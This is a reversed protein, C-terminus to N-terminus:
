TGNLDAWGQWKAGVRNRRQVHGLKVFDLRFREDFSTYEIYNEKPTM